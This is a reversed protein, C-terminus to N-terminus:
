EIEEDMRWPKGAIRREIMEVLHEIRRQRTPTTKAADIYGMMERKQNLTLADFTELGDEVSRIANEVDGTLQVDRDSDDRAVSLVITDGTDSGTARRIESNIFLRYRGAGAPVLNSCLSLGGAEVVVPIHSEDGLSRAVNQPIDVCRNVGLKYISAVFQHSQRSRGM